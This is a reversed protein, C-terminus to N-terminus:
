YLYLVPIVKIGLEKAAMARHRGEQQKKKTDLYPMDFKTGDKMMQAYETVKSKDEMGDYTDEIPSKFIEKSCRDMYEDPSMESIYCNEYGKSRAYNLDKLYDQHPEGTDLKFGEYSSKSAEKPLIGKYSNGGQNIFEKDKLKDIKNYIENMENEVEQLKMLWLDYEDFGNFLEYYAEKESRSLDSWEEPSMSCRKRMDEDSVKKKEPENSKLEKEKQSLEKLQDKLDKYETSDKYGECIVEVM